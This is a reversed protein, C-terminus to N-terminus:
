YKTFTSILSVRSWPAGEHGVVTFYSRFPQQLDNQPISFNHKIWFSTFDLHNKLFVYPM